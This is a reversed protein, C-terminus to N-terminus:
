YIIKWLLGEIKTLLLDINTNKMDLLKQNIDDIRSKNSRKILFKDYNNKNFKRKLSVNNDIVIYNIKLSDLKDIVKNLSILPFGVKVTNSFEKIQYGLVNNLIKADDALAIYFNGSKILIIYKLYKMKYNYFFDKIM